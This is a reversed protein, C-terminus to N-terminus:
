GKRTTKLEFSLTETKTSVLTVKVDKLAENTVADLVYGEISGTTSAGIYSFTMVLVSTLGVTMIKRISKM